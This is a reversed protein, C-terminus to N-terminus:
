RSLDIPPACTSMENDAAFTSLRESIPIGDVPTETFPEYEGSARLREAYNRRDQLYTRYEDEWLPVIGQGKPDSPEVAVVDDLMAELIDTSTEVIGARRAVLEPTSEEVRMLDALANREETATVCISEAREAWARDGVRNVAEKSAFFLAWIWFAAFGLVVVLLLTRVWPNPRHEIEEHPAIVSMSTVSDVTGDDPGGRTGGLTATM